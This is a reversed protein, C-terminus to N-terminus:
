GAPTIPFGCRPCHAEVTVHAATSSASGEDAAGQLHVEDALLARALDADLVLMDLAGTRLAARVGPLREVGAALGVVLPMARLEEVTLGIVRHSSPEGLPRGQADFYHGCLDGCPKQAVFRQSEEADLHMAELIRRSTGRGYSGIGVFALECHRARELAARVSTESRLADFTARSEVIAPADFRETRTGTREALPVLMHNGSVATDVTPMGGVLSVLSTGPALRQSPIVETLRQISVGWGFGIRSADPALECFVEAGLRAVRDVPDRGEGPGRAVRVARLGHVTRLQQELDADRRVDEEDDVIEFRVIGEDKAARLVRSVGSKSLGLIEGVATQDQGELYYLRAAEILTRRDRRAM